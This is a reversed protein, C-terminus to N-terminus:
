IKDGPIYEKWLGNEDIQLVGMNRQINLEEIRYQVVADTLENQSLLLADQADVLDRIQARGADLFMSVSKVRKQAVAVAQSQIYMNERAVVLNRLSNRIELKIGDEANQVKRVAQQLLIFSNRYAVTEVTREIPLNLTVLSSYFGRDAVFNANPLTASSVSQRRSGIQATGLFTLEARLRDAAVVVKRQADYVQGQVTRLDYRNSFALTIANPEPIEMPGGNEYEPEIVGILNNPDNPDANYEKYIQNILKKSPEVLKHLENPDLILNADPPLGISIKFKDLQTKYALIAAIWRQRAALENQIAQDVEIQKIRGAEALRKSWKSSAIRSRYDSETNNIRDMQQLVSLYDTAVNVAFRKKYQEFDWFAYIVNRDAQILPETVIYAGSGRLLPVSISADGALGVSSAGGLSLLNALDLGLSSSIEAGNMFKRSVGVDGSVVNGSVTRDGTTDTSTLNQIQAFFSNSFENGALELDLATQFINEKQTQYEPSNHAGIELSQLLSIVVTDNVDNIDDNKGTIIERPYDKEPWHKIKELDEAGLSAPSSIPLNQGKLLRRRLIDSPREISFPSKKGTAEIQKESLIKDITKDMNERRAKASCGTLYLCIIITAMLVAALHELDKTLLTKFFNKKM